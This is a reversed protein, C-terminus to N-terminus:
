QEKRNEISKKVRKYTDDKMLEWVIQSELTRLENKGKQTLIIRLSKPLNITVLKYEKENEMITKREEIKNKILQMDKYNLKNIFKFPDNYLCHNKLDLKDILFDITDKKKNDM